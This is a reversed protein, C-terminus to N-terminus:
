EKFTFEIGELWATDGDKAGAQRLKEDLGNKQLIELIDDLLYKADMRYKEIYKRIYESVIEFEGRDNRIIRIDVRDPMTIRIPEPKEFEITSLDLTGSFLKKSERIIDWIVHKLENLGTGTVASVPMLSRALKGELRSKVRELEGQDLLDAKNGVIIEPKNALEKNFFELEERIDFYDQLPDGGESGSIDLVHVIVECREVHKLFINGLGKGQSAGKILGPVDAIVFSTNLASDVSVVGLSPVLTTFHYDAVKPRANSIRSIISSKGVNPYGILGADALLKLELRIIREEGKAGQEAFKPAQTTPSKFHTNGRGGKGGRAVCCYKGPEDLDAILERTEFDRVITGIPVRLVMDNGNRGSQKKKRGNEGNQAIYRKKETLHYLTSLTPDAILFVFGGDGGDGGDPGGYPIYKERRFTVAGNGGDGAKVIIDVVDIFDIKEM